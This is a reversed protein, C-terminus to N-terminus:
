YEKAVTLNTCGLRPPTRVSMMMMAACTFLMILFLGLLVSFFITPTIFQVGPELFVIPSEQLHLQLHNLNERSLGESDPIAGKNVVENGGPRLSLKKMERKHSSSSSKFSMEAVTSPMEASVMAIVGVDSRQAISNLVNQLCSLGFSADVEVLDTMENGYIFSKEKLQDLLGSCSNGRLVSAENNANLIMQETADHVSGTV